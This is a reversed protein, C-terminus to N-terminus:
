ALFRRLHVPSRDGTVEAAPAPDVRSDLTHWYLVPGGADPLDQLFGAAAKATYTADLEIGRDAFWRTAAEGAATAAGYGDGIQEQGITIRRLVADAAPTGDTTCLIALTGRVLSRVRRRNTIARSTIRHAVIDTPMGACALGVAMGVATGLTGGAVHIRVPRPCEGAEVQRALELGANVYGLTGWADSGGAPITHVREGRRRMRERLIAIPVGLPGAAIRVDAGHAVMLRLVLRVHETVPQPMLVVSVAYGQAGGHVTTALAHHSGIAGVTLLRDAGRARPLLFELKRVKNGGYAGSTVDDRKIWADGVAADLGAVPTPTTALAVHGVKGALAPFREFLPIQGM